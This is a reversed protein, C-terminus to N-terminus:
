IGVAAFRAVPRAVPCLRWAAALLASARFPKSLYVDAGVALAYDRHVPRSLVSLMVVPLHGDSRAKALEAVRTGSGGPLLLEAILLDPLSDRLRAEAEAVTQACEVTYGRRRLLATVPDSVAPDPEALLVSPSGSM